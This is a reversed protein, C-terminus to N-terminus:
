KKDSWLEALLPFPRRHLNAATMVDPRKGAEVRGRVRHGQDDGFM